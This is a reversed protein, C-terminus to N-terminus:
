APMARAVEPILVLRKVKLGTLRASLVSLAGHM